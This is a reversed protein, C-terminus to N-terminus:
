PQPSPIQTNGYGSFPVVSHHTFHIMSFLGFLSIVIALVMLLIPAVIGVIASAKIFGTGEKTQAGALEPKLERLNEFIKYAYVASFPAYFLTLVFGIIGASAKGLFIAFLVGFPLEIVFVAVLVIIGLLLSRGLVAWWYGKIYDKSQRLADIGRRGEIVFVYRAVGLAVALWIGPIILMFSGGLVAFMTLITMWVFPWFLPVTNKYSADVGSNNHISSILPISVFVLAIVGIILVLVGLLIFISGLSLLVEALIMVLVPLLMIETLVGFREKYLKWSDSFLSGISHLGLRSATNNEM